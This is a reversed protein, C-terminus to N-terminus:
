GNGIYEVRYEFHAGSRHQGAKGCCTYETLHLM